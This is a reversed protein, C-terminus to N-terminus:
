LALNQYWGDQIARFAMKMKKWRGRLVFYILYAITKLLQFVFATWVYQDRHLRLTWFRNRINYYHLIPLISGENEKSRKRGSGGAVHYIVARPELVITVGSEKLRLSTEVDENYAFYNNRFFPIETLIDTSCLICCGTFWDIPYAKKSAFWTIPQNYGVTISQGTWRSLKGGANWTAKRDHAWGILPQVITKKEHCATEVLRDLFNESVFTDNNLLLFFDFSEERIIQLLFNNGGTFGLNEEVRFTRVEPFQDQVVQHEQELSGNDLVFIQVEHSTELHELSSLCNLTHHISNWNVIAIAIRSM